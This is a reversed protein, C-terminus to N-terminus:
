GADTREGYPVRAFILRTRGLRTRDVGGHKGICALVHAEARRPYLLAIGGGLALNAGGWGRPLGTSSARRWIQAARRCSLNYARIPTGKVAGCGRVAAPAFAQSGPVPGTLVLTVAAVASAGFLVM